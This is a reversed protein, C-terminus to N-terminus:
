LSPTELEGRVQHSTGKRKQNKEALQEKRALRTRQNNRQRVEKPVNYRTTIIKRAQEVSVPTGDVDRLEYARDEKLITWIRDLLHTACVCVAQTHHKGHHVVQDYYIAAIQPDWQRATEAGLFSFKKILDPGAQSIPLGKTESTGSQSSRPIMGSWGRFSAHDPFRKPDGVFSSYVAAGDQGVGYLSELNRSPHSQRYLPRVTELQLQKYEAELMSLLTQERTVEAQLYAYDLFASETGYLALVQEALQVLATAWRPSELMEDSTQANELWNALLGEEGLDLVAQPDYWHERFWRTIPAINDPLVQELGPWAFRDIARLRNQIAINMDMLRDLEKCGRQCALQSAGILQLPHLKEPSVIPLKALVRSDIRDSKAHKRYYRRLDAVQQSNVLYVKVGQRQCFVAVPFWGMGTPEMVVVLPEDSRTGERARHFLQELSRASTEVSLVPTIDQGQEDIVVAKHSTALALDLGIYRM